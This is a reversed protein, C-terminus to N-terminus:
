SADALQCRLRYGELPWMQRICENRAFEQGLPANFNAPDAPASHGVVVFGNTLTLICITVHPAAVPHVFQENAILAKLSDLSVRHPTKQVAAAQADSVEISNM